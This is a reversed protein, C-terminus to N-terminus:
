LVSKGIPVAQPVHYFPPEPLIGSGRM